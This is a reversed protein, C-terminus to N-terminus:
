KVDIVRSTRLSSTTSNGQNITEQFFFVVNGLKGQLWAFHSQFLPIPPIVLTCVCVYVRVKYDNGSRYLSVSM